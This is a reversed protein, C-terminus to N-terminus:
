TRPKYVPHKRLLGHEQSFLGPTITSTGREQRHIGSTITSTGQEQGYLCPTIKSDSVCEQGYYIM